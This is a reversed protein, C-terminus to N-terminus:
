GTGKAACDFGLSQEMANAAIAEYHIDIPTDKDIQEATTTGESIAGFRKHSLDKM